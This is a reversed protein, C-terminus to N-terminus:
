IFVPVAVSTSAGLCIQQSTTAVATRDFMLLLRVASFLLRRPGIVPWINDAPKPKSSSISCLIFKYLKIMLYIYRYLLM